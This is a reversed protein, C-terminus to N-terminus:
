IEEQRLYELIQMAKATLYDINEKDFSSVLHVTKTSTVTCVQRYDAITIDPKQINYIHKVVTENDKKTTM